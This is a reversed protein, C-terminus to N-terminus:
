DPRKWRAVIDDAQASTLSSFCMFRAASASTEGSAYSVNLAVETCAGNFIELWRCMLLELYAVFQELTICWYSTGVYTGCLNEGRRKGMGHAQTNVNVHAGSM